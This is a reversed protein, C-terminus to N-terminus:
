QVDFYPALAKIAAARAAVALQGPDWAWYEPRFLEISCPGDYGIQKLRACVEGIPAVGLGPLLRLADTVAEKACAEVDDLHFAYIFAPDIQDIESLM